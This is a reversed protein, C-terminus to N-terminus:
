MHSDTRLIDQPSRNRVDRFAGNVSKDLEVDATLDDRGVNRGMGNVFEPELDAHRYGDIHFM